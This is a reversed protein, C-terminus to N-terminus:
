KVVVGVESCSTELQDLANDLATSLDDECMDYHRGREGFLAAFEMIKPTEETGGYDPSFCGKAHTVSNIEATGKLPGAITVIVVFREDGGKIDILGDRIAEIAM